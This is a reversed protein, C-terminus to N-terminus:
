AALAVQAKHLEADPDRMSMRERLVVQAGRSPSITISRRRAVEPKEGVPELEFREFVASLM